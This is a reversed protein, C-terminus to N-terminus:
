LWLLNFLRFSVDLILFALIASMVGDTTCQVPDALRDNVSKWAKQRYTVARGEDQTGHTYNRHLTATSMLQLLSAPDKIFLGFWVPRFAVRLKTVEYESHVSQIM